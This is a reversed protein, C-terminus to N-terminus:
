DLAFRLEFARAVMLVLALAEVASLAFIFPTSTDAAIAYLSGVEGAVAAAFFGRVTWRLRQVSPTIRAIQEEEIQDLERAIGVMPHQVDGLDWGVEEAMGELEEHAEAIAARLRDAIAGVPLITATELMLALLLVPIVTAIVVYYDAAVQSPWGAAAAIAALVFGALPVLAFQGVTAALRALVPVMLLVKDVLDSRDQALLCTANSAQGPCLGIPYGSGESLERSCRYENAHCTVDSIEEIALGLEQEPALRKALEQDLYGHIQRSEAAFRSKSHV